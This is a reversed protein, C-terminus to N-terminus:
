FWADEYTKESEDVFGSTYFTATEERGDHYIITMKSYVYKEGDLQEPLLIPPNNTWRKGNTVMVETTILDGETLVKKIKGGSDDVMLELVFIDDKFRTVIM